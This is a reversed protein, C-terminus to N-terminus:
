IQQYPFAEKQKYLRGGKQCKRLHLSIVHITYPKNTYTQTYM